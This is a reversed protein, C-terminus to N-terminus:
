FTPNKFSADLVHQRQPFNLLQGCAAILILVFYYRNGTQFFDLIGLLAAVESVAWAIIYGQQVLQLQQQEVSQTLFRKKIVISIPITVLGAGLFSLSLANNRNNAPQEVFLTFGYYVGLSMLLAGWLTRLTRIRQEIQLHLDSQM